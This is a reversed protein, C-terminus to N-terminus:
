HKKSRSRCINTIKKFFSKKDVTTDTTYLELLKINNDEAIDSLSKGITNVCATHINFIKKADKANVTMLLDAFIRGAVQFHQYDIPSDWNGGWTNFGYKAFLQIIEDNIKGYGYPKGPRDIQRNLYKIGERPIISTVEQKEEDIMICPNHLFNLDIATGYSHLSLRDTGLIVRCSYAGTFAPLNHEDTEVSTWFLNEIKYRGMKPDIPEIPFKKEKLEEFIKVVNDALADQVIITGNNILNGNFDYYEINKIVAYRNLYKDCHNDHVKYERLTQLLETEEALNTIIAKANVNNINAINLFLAIYSTKCFLSTLFRGNM